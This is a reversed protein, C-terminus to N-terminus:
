SEEEYLHNQRIYEYVAEPVYYRISRGTRVLERIMSSSIELCPLSLKEIRAKYREKLFRIKEELVEGPVQKRDAALICSNDFIVQPEHWQEMYNLSDAGVLFFIEKDQCHRGFWSLTDSTYSYGEREMEMSSFQFRPNGEIAKQVMIARHNETLVHKTRKHPPDGAPIFVVRALEFQEMACQALQLHALHIPDFTGGMIGIREKAMVKM